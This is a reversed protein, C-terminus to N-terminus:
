RYPALWAPAPVVPTADRPRLQRRTPIAARAAFRAAPVVDRWRRNALASHLYVRAARAHQRRRLQLWAVYHAFAVRDIDVGHQARLARHKDDLYDLEAFCEGPLTLSMGTFHELYAVLIEDSAAATGSWALRIWCEWDALHALQEDFGGVSRILEARVLVNSPGAPIACGALMDYRLRGPEPVPYAYLVNGEADISVVGAYGFDAGAARVADLQTRLKHPAWSDDDDLFAIWEGRAVEIGANRARAVGGSSGQQVVRLRADGVEALRAPTGDTSGDDVVIVEHEVGEQALASRLARKSLLNWRNRTPIVVSVEVSPTM